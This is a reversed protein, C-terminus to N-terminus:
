EQTLEFKILREGEYIGTIRGRNDSLVGFLGNILGLVGLTHVGAEQLVQITPHQVLGSGVCFRSKFMNQITYPELELAENLVKVAHVASLELAVELLQENLNIDDM